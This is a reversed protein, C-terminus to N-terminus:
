KTEKRPKFANKIIDKAAKPLDQEDFSILQMQMLMWYGAVDMLTDDIALVVSSDIVKESALMQLRNLKENIRSRIINYPKNVDGTFDIPKLAADGYEKNKQSLVPKFMTFYVIDLKQEFTLEERNKQM